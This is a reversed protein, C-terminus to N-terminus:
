LTYTFVPIYILDPEMDFFYRFFLFNCASSTLPEEVATHVNGGILVNQLLNNHLNRELM